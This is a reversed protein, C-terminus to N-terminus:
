MMKKVEASGAQPLSCGAREFSFNITKVLDYPCRQQIRIYHSLAGLLNEKM